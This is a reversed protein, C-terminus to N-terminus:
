MLVRQNGHLQSAGPKLSVIGENVPRSTGDHTRGRGNGSTLVVQGPFAGRVERDNGHLVLVEPLHEALGPDCRKQQVSGIVAPNVKERAGCWGPSM